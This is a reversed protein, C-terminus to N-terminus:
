LTNLRNKLWNQAMTLTSFMLPVVVTLLGDVPMGNLYKVAEAIGIIIGSFVFMLGGKKLTIVPDYGTGPEEANVIEVKVM